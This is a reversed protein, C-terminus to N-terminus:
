EWFPDVLSFARWGDHAHAVATAKRLDLTAALTAAAPQLGPHGDALSRVLRLANALDNVEGLSEQLRECAQLYRKVAKGGFVPRLYEVGYRLQKAARRLAHLEDESRREIRRGRRRVKRELPTLLGPAANKLEDAAPGRANAATWSTVCTVLSLIAAADLGYAMQAHAAARRGRAAEAMAPDALASLTHLCFVDWDRAAGLIRGLGRLEAQLLASSGPDLVPAFLALATRLRRIAVRLQHIAEMDGALALRTNALLHRLGAAVIAAAAAAPDTRRDLVTDAARVVDQSDDVRGSWASAPVGAHVALAVQLLMLLDAGPLTFRLERGDQRLVADGAGADLHLVTETGGGHRGQWSGPLVLRPMADPGSM